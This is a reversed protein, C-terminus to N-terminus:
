IYTHDESRKYLLHKDLLDIKYQISKDILIEINNWFLPYLFEGKPHKKSTSVQKTYKSLKWFRTFGTNILM